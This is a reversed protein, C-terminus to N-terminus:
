EFMEHMHVGLTTAIKFLSVTGFDLSGSIITRLTTPSIKYLKCFKTKSINNEQMYKTILDTNVKNRKTELLM